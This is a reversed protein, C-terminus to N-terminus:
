APHACWEDSARRHDAWGARRGAFATPAAPRAERDSTRPALTSGMPNHAMPRALTRNLGAHLEGKLAALRSHPGASVGFFLRREVLECPRMTRVIAYRPVSDSAGRWLQMRSSLSMVFARLPVVRARMPQYRRGCVRM